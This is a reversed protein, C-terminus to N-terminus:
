DEGAESSSLISGLKPDTIYEINEEKEYLVVSTFYRLMEEATHGYTAQKSKASNYNLNNYAAELKTSTIGLAALGWTIPVHNKGHEGTNELIKINEFTVAEIYILFSVWLPCQQLFAYTIIENHQKESMKLGYLNWQKLYRTSSIIAAGEICHLVGMVRWVLNVNFKTSLDNSNFNEIRAPKGSGRHVKGHFYYVHLEGLNEEYSWIPRITAPKDNFSHLLGNEDVTSNNEDRHIKTM